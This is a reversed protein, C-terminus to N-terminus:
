CWLSPCWGCRRFSLTLFWFGDVKGSTVKKVVVNLSTCDERKEDAGKMERGKELARMNNLSGWGFQIEGDKLCADM